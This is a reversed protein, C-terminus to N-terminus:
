DRGELCTYKGPPALLGAESTLLPFFRFCPSRAVVVVLLLMLGPVDGRRRGTIFPRGAVVQIGHAVRDDVALRVDLLGSLIDLLRLVHRLFVRRQGDALVTAVHVHVDSLHGRRREGCDGRELGDLLYPDHGGGVWWVCVCQGTWGQHHLQGESKFNYGLCPPSPTSHNHGQLVRHQQQLLLQQLRRWQTVVM